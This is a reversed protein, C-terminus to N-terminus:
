KVEKNTIVRVSNQEYFDSFMRNLEADSNSYLDQFGCRPSINLPKPFVINRNGASNEMRMYVSRENIQNQLTNIEQYTIIYSTASAIVILVIFALNLKKSTQSTKIESYIIGIAVIMLSMIGFLARPPFILSAVMALCAIHAAIVFLLSGTFQKSKKWDGAFTKKAAFFLIIYFITMPLIYVVYRIGVKSLRYVITEILSKDAFGLEQVVVASRLYNGPAILMILGGICLGIFGIVAWRPLKTGKKKLLFFLFVIFVAQAVFMNENTWGSIIGFFLFRIAKFIGDTSKESIYLAYFPYLFLLGILTGWLYNASGTLWLVISYFNQIFLWSLCTIVIALRINHQKTANVIKYMIYLYIVFALSNLLKNEPYGIWILFQAITHVVSRGGWTLYHNIQSELIDGFSQVRRLPESGYVFAYHWDDSYLPYLNNLIFILIFLIFFFALLIYKQSGSNKIKGNQM